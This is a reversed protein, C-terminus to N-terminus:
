PTSISFSELLAISMREANSDGIQIVNGGGSTEKSLSAPVECMLEGDVFYQVSGVFPAYSESPKFIIKIASFKEPTPVEFGSAKGEEQNWMSAFVKKQPSEWLTLMVPNMKPLRIILVFAGPGGMSEVPRLSLESTFGEHRMQDAVAPNIKYILNASLETSDDKFDIVKVEDYEIVQLPLSGTKWNPDKPLAGKFSTILEAFGSNLSLSFSLAAIILTKYKM